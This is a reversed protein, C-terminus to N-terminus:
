GEVPPKPDPSSKRVFRKGMEDVLNDLEAGRGFEKAAKYVVLAGTYAESGAMLLTDSVQQTLRDLQQWIDYLETYLQVDGQFAADDFSRPLFNSDAVVMSAAACVFRESKPGLKPLSQREEPSLDIPKPLKSRIAEIETM